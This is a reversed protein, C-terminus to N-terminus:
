NLLESITQAKSLINGNEDILYNAPISNIHYDTAIKGLTGKFDCYNVMGAIGLKEMGSVWRISDLDLSINIIKLGKNEHSLKLLEPIEEICPACSSSWFHLLVKSSKLNELSCLNGHNDKFSFEPAATQKAFGVENGIIHGLPTKQIRPELYSYFLQIKDLHILNNNMLYNIVFAAVLKNNNALIIKESDDIFKLYLEKIDDKNLESNTVNNFFEIWLDQFKYFESNNNPDAMFIPRNPYKARINASFKNNVEILDAFKIETVEKSLILYIPRDSKNIGEFMIHYLTPEEIDGINIDFLNGSLSITDAKQTVTNYLYLKGSYPNEIAIKLTENKNCGFLLVAILIYLLRKM